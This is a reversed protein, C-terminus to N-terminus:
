SGCETGLTLAKPKASMRRDGILYLLLRVICGRMSCDFQLHYSKRRLCVYFVFRCEDTVWIVAEERQKETNRCEADM